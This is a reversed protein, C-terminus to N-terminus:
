RNLVFAKKYNSDFIWHVVFSIAHSSNGLFGILQVLTVHESRDIMIDYYGVRKYKRLSYYVRPKGKAKKQKQLLIQSIM